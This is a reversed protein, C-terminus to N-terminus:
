AKRKEVKSIRPPIVDEKADINGIINGEVFLILSERDMYLVAAVSYPKDTAKFQPIM